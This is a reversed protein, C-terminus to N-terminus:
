LHSFHTQEIFHLINTYDSNKLVFRNKGVSINVYPHGTNESLFITSKRFYWVASINTFSTKTRPFAKSINLAKYHRIDIIMSLKAMVKVDELYKSLGYQTWLTAM